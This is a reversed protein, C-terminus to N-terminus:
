RERQLEEYQQLWSKLSTVSIRVSRGFRVVPPGEEQALLAYLKARSLGLCQAAQPITLLLPQPTQELDNKMVESGQNVIRADQEVLRRPSTRDYREPTHRVDAVSHDHISDDPFM